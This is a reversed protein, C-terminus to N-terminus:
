TGRLLGVCAGATHAISSSCAGSYQNGLSQGRTVAQGRSAVSRAAKRSANQVVASRTWAISSPQSCAIRVAVRYRYWRSAEDNRGHGSADPCHIPSDTTSGMATSQM